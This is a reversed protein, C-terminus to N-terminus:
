FLLSFTTSLAMHCSIIPPRYSSLIVRPQCYYSLLLRLRVVVPFQIRNVIMSSPLPRQAVPSIVASVLVKIEPLHCSSSFEAFVYWIGKRCFCHSLLDMNNLGSFIQYNTAYCYFVLVAFWFFYQLYLKMIERTWQEDTVFM